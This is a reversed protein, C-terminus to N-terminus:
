FPRLANIALETALAAGHLWRSAPPPNCILLRPEESGDGVYRRDPGSIPILLSASDPPEGILVARAALDLHTLGYSALMGRASLQPSLSFGSQLAQGPLFPRELVLFPSPRGRTPLLRILPNSLGTVSFTLQYTATEFLGRGWPPLRSSVAAELSGVLSLPGIPGSLSWRRRPQEAVTIALDATGTDSNPVIRVDDLSLPEFLGSKNLRALSTRLKGVDFVSREQLTMARRLTSESTRRHGSFNIRGVTFASGTRVRATVDVWTGGQTPRPSSGTPSVELEVVFDLHGHSEAVRRADLLCSCVDAFPFEGSSDGTTEEHAPRIGDINVHRVSYKAGSLVELTLVAERGEVAMGGVGVRADFYGHSVYFSRLRALDAQVARATYMPNRTWIGPIGHRVNLDRLVKKLTEPDFAPNGEFRVDRVRPPPAGHSPLIKLDEGASPGASVITVTVLLFLISFSSTM